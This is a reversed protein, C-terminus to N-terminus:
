AFCFDKQQMADMVKYQVPLASAYCDLLAQHQNMLDDFRSTQNDSM